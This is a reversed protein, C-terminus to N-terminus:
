AAAKSAPLPRTRNSRARSSSAGRGFIRSVRERVSEARDDDAFGLGILGALSGGHRDGGVGHVMEPGPEPRGAYVAPRHKPAHVPMSLHASLRVGPRTAM